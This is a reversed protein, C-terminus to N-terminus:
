GPMKMGGPMNAAAAKATAIAQKLQEIRPAYEAPLNPKLADLQAVAKDALDFKNEKIYTGAETLLKEAELKAADAANAVSPATTPVAAGGAPAPTPTPAPAPTSEKGCGCLAAVSLGVIACIKLKM